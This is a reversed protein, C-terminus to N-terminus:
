RKVIGGRQGNLAYRYPISVIISKGKRQSQEKNLAYRYPISVFEIDDDDDDDTRKFRVQLSNFRIKFVM